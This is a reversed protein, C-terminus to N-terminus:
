FPLIFKRNLRRFHLSTSAGVKKFYGSNLPSPGLCDNGGEEIEDKPIWINDKARWVLWEGNDKLCPYIWQITASISRTGIVIFPGLTGIRSKLEQTFVNAENRFIVIDRAQFHPGAEATKLMTHLISGQSVM